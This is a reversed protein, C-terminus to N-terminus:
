VVESVYLHTTPGNSGRSYEISYVVYRTSAQKIQDTGDIAFDIDIIDGLQITPLGFVEIGVSKRPRTVKQTLWSMLENASDQSQIYPSDISFSKNGYTMRSNKIDAYDQAYDITTLKNGNFVPNSFDSKKSFFSDVSLEHQSQDTFAIGLIRLYNGTSSDLSLITDTANFVMFEAGYATSKFGSIVYGKMDNVVNAIKANFAPYAKDYRVNFYAAERMITGFEEYYIRNAPPTGTSIDSLYASQIAGSLAYKRFAQSTTLSNNADDKFVQNMVTSLQASRDQAYNAAIAYANEFMCRASGRVFLAMNNYVPLPDIDDVTGVIEDNFYLYFRRTKADIDKYEVAIDYVSINQEAMVRSQGTFQGDDTIIPGLKTWMTVPIANGNEDPVIKYFYMNNIQSTNTYNAVNNETLAVIEFYYGVNTEPNVMVSIGGSAGNITISSAADTPTVTKITSSGVPTQVRSDGYELKGIIRMRTGFHVYKNASTMEDASFSKYSCSIFDTPKAAPDTFSPGNMIMASAQISGAETSFMKSATNETVNSISAFNKIISNVTSEKAKTDSTGKGAKLAANAKIESATKKSVTDTIALPANSDADFLYSSKMTCGVINKVWTSSEKLGASHYAIPTGFQARGHKVLKGSADVETYIRVRGTPFLKGNFPIKSFYDKYEESSRVWGTGVGPISYEIADFKIIEGNSYFYGNHRGLTYVNEGFDITNNSITVVNNVTSVTPIQASLDSNLPIASLAYSSQNSLEGNVSRVDEPAGVEWLLVPAYTWTKDKNLALAQNLKPVEKKIYRATYTIKGDNFVDTDKSKIDVINALQGTTSNSYVGSKASDSSGKLTINTTREESTPMMYKKSMFILNNYEDFFVATQTAIALDNIVKAVTTDPGVFFYPIVPDVEGPVRKFYYNSFGISDLLMAVAYSLSAQPVFLQPAQMNELYFFLDRLSIKLTRDTNSTQPFEESYMTKNPIYYNAGNVDVVQEYFKVQMNKTVINSVLSGVNNENFAQNYDFIELSGTSALLQGVPLGSVGIDSAVKKVSFGSVIDTINAVLRPSMEILDFTGNSKTMTKVVIRMGSIEAFERYFTKGNVVYSNNKILDTVMPSNDSIVENHIFWGYTPVFTQYQDTVWIYYTGIDGPNEVVLYAYGDISQEPLVTSSAVQDVHVFIDSYESPIKLGYALEVYGDSPVDYEGFPIADTWTTGDLYQVKWEKPTIKNSSGYFPDSMPGTVNSYNNRPSSDDSAIHTQTKMVLRNAYVPTKYTVFPAADDILKTLIASVGRTVGNELRYSSWYKFKADRDALYYRPRKAMDPNVDPIYRGPFYMLKNIGSRPRFRGVCDELSFFLKQKEDYQLLSIPENTEDVLGYVITSSNNTGTYDNNVDLPDYTNNPDSAGQAPRFRYNGIKDINDSTNLNWEAIVLSNIKLTSSTQLHTNLEDTKNGFM